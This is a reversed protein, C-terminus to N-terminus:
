YKSHPDTNNLRNEFAKLWREMQTPAEEVPLQSDPFGKKKKPIKKSKSSSSSNSKTKQAMEKQVLEKFEAEFIQEYYTLCEEVTAKSSPVFPQPSVQEKKLATKIVPPSQNPPAQTHKRLQKLKNKYTKNVRSLFDEVSETHAARCRAHWALKKDSTVVTEQHPNLSNKLEDLIFEDATEGEATFLIELENFHSRSREGVQFTADFIISANIKLLSIKKNLDYIIQERQSQLDDDADMLRFLMNYGDIFYHM